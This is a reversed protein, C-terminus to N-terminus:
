AEDPTKMSKGRIEALKARLRRRRRKQYATIIPVSVYYCALGAALGPLLGGVLYPTFVEHHFSALNEWNAQRPTFLASINDRLDRGAGIFAQLLSTGTRTDMTRGLLLHGTQLSVLGIPWYTLPNGFFTGLLAALINGRLIKAILGAIIFHFGFFPTFAAFM